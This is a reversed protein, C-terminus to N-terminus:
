ALLYLIVFYIYTKNVKNKELFDIIQSNQMGDKQLFNVLLLVEAYHLTQQVGNKIKQRILKLKAGIDEEM